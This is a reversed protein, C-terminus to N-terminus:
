CLTPRRRVDEILLVFSLIGYVPFSFDGPAGELDGNVLVYLSLWVLGSTFLGIHLFSRRRIVSGIILMGACLAQLLYWTADVEYWDLVEKVFSPNEAAGTWAYVFSMYALLLSAWRIDSRFIPERM